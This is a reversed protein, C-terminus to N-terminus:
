MAPAAFAGTAALATLGLAVAIVGVIMMIIVYVIGAIIGGIIITLITGVLDTGHITKLVLYFLYLGYLGLVLNVIGGGCAVAPVLAIVFSVVSNIITIASSPLAAIYFQQPFAGKGKFVRTAVAHIIWQVVYVLVLSIVMLIISMLVVTGAAAADGVGVFIGVASLVVSVLAALILYKYGAGVTGKDKTAMSVLKDPFLADIMKGIM